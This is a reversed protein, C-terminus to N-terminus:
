VIFEESKNLVVSIFCTNNKPGLLKLPPLATHLVPANQLLSFRTMQTSHHVRISEFELSSVHSPITVTELMMQNMLFLCVHTAETVTQPQATGAGRGAPQQHLPNRIDAPVTTMAPPIRAVTMKSVMTATSHKHLNCTRVTKRDLRSETQM